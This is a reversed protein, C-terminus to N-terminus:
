VIEWEFCLDEKYVPRTGCKETKHLSLGQDLDNYGINKNSEHEEKIRKESAASEM